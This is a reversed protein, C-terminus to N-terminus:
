GAALRPSPELQIKPILGPDIQISRRSEAASLAGGFCGGVDELFQDLDIGLYTPRYPDLYKRSGALLKNAGHVNGSVLHHLAVAAQILGKYFQRSAGRERVWLEEWAEHCAFFRRHNFLEVGKLYLPEYVTTAM